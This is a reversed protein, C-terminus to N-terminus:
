TICALGDMRSHALCPVLARRSVWPHAREEPSLENMLTALQAFRHTMILYLISHPISAPRPVGDTDTVALEEPLISRM